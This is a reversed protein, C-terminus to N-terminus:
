HDFKLLVRSNSKLVIRDGLMEATGNRLSNSLHVSYWDILFGSSRAKIFKPLDECPTRCIARVICEACPSKM